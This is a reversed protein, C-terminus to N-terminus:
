GASTPQWTGTGADYHLACALPAVGCIPPYTQVGPFASGGSPTPIQYGPSPTPDPDAGAPAAAAVTAAVAAAALVINRVANMTSM